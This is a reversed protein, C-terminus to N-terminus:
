KLLAYLLADYCKGNKYRSKVKTGEYKFGLKKALKESRDNGKWIVIEIRNIDQNQFLYDIFASVAEFAYGQGQYDLNLGWGISVFKHMRSHEEVSVAGIMKKQSKLEIAWYLRPWETKYKEVCENVSDKYVNIDDSANSSLFRHHEPNKRYEIYDNLDSKKLERLLLRETEIKKVQIYM